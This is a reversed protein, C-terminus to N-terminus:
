RARRRELTGPENFNSGDACRNRRKVAITGDNACDRRNGAAENRILRTANGDNEIGEGNNIFARNLKLLNGIGGEVYIGDTNALRAVNRRVRNNDGDVELGHEGSAIGRNGVITNNDGDIELGPENGEAGDRKSLNGDIRSNDVDIDFGGDNNDVSLNDRILLGGDSGSFDSIEFGEDDDGNDRAVNNTIEARACIDALDAGAPNDQCGIDFGEDDNTLVSSNGVVLMNEGDIEFGECATSRNRVVRPRNGDIEYCQDDSANLARNDKILNSDGDVDISENDTNKVLNRSIESGNGNLEIGDGDECNYIRNGVIRALDGDLDLCRNDGARMVNNLVKMRDGLIDIVNDDCGRFRSREVRGQGGIIEICDGSQDSMRVNVAAFGCSQGTCDVGFGNRLALRRLTVENADIDFILNDLDGVRSTGDVIPLMGRRPDGVIELRDTTVVVNEFYRRKRAKVLITDGPSAADVAGQITPRDGPVTITAASAGPSLALLGVVALLGACGLQARTSSKMRFLEERRLTSM